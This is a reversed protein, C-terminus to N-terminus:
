GNKNEGKIISDIKDKYDQNNRLSERMSKDIYQFLDAPLENRESAALEFFEERTKPDPKLIKIIKFQKEPPPPNVKGKLIDYFYPKKIGLETYFATHSKGYDKLMESLLDCFRKKESL